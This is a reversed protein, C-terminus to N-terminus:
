TISPMQYKKKQKTLFSKELQNETLNIAKEVYHLAAANDNIMYSYEAYTAFYLYARQELENPNIRNLLLHTKQYSKRELHVIAINLLTYPSNEIANMQEYLNLIRDWNTEEYSSAQVHEAAIGAEYHYHSLLTTEMAKEMSKHGTVVLPYHWLSRDQEKLSILEGSATLRSKLRAVQFCILAFLAHANPTATVSKKLLCKSLRIAEGCLEERIIAERKSSHFGENFILYIVELVRDIRNQLQNGHPIEFTLQNEVIFKRARTLRKKVTEEKLLLSAAIEKRSFGSITKLAFAIQDKPHLGPNCAAFIMRLISDDIEKESFLENIAYTSIGSSLKKVHKDENSIKRLLDIIRYKASQVLWAEPNDPIKNQWSKLAKIFTDQIADEIIELHTLGFIRTFISVMKGYQHRFLHDINITEAM